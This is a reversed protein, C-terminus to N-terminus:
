EAPVIVKLNKLSSLALNARYEQSNALFKQEKGLLNKLGNFSQFWHHVSYQNDSPHDCICITHWTPEHMCVCVYLPVLQTNHVGQSWDYANHDHNILTDQSKVPWNIHYFVMQSWVYSLTHNPTRTKLHRILLNWQLMCSMFSHKDSKMKIKGDWGCCNKIGGINIGYPDNKDVRIFNQIKYECLYVGRHYWDALWAEGDQM